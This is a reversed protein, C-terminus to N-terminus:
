QKRFIPLAFGFTVGTTVEWDPAGRTIGRRVAADWYINRSSPQWIVGLLASNNAREGRVSEGSVEGVVRLGPQVPVEGIMGWVGFPRAASRDVGGGLNLHVTLTAVRASAIGTAEFGVGDDGRVTSPLLPGAEVAIGVGDREQLVGEKVVAKVFLAPDILNVDGNPTRAVRFEGVLEVDRWLGYNLILSPLLFTNEGRERRLTVYGLEIELERADAVAADTSVFPRYAHARPPATVLCAAVLFGAVLRAPRLTM